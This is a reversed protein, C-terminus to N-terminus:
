ERRGKAAIMPRLAAWMNQAVRLAGAATPHIGDTQNLARVGAVGTLLFPFLTVREDRAVEGYIAHFRRTYAEGLNSPAEMQVLALRASPSRARVRSIIARLNAATSDPNVGRLGDNAGTEIVVISAPDTLVWDVRRLAGASTEGSSGANVIRVAFGASDAM